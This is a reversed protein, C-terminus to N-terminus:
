GAAPEKPELQMKREEDLKRNRKHITECFSSLKEIDEKVEGPDPRNVDLAKSKSHGTMWVSCKGMAFYVTKNDDDTVEVGSLRKTQVEAGHRMVVKYLLEEEVFTEWAERLKGYVGAAAENYESINKELIEPLKSLRRNLLDLKEKVDLIHWPGRDISQGIWREKTILQATWKSNPIESVHTKLATLFVIDHTFVIVQRVQAEQALRKAIKDRFRHDLSSVPDDFVIPNKTESAEREALFGAIALVRQEGESFIDTLSARKPLAGKTLILKYIVEGGDSTPKIEIPIYSIGLKLMEEKLATQLSPTLAASIIRKGKAAISIINTEAIAAEYGVNKKLANFHKQIEVVHSNLIRRNELKFHKQNMELLQEPTITELPNIEEKIDNLLKSIESDPSQEPPEFADFKKNQCNSIFCQSRLKMKNSYETLATAINPYREKIELMLDSTSTFKTFDLSEIEETFNNLKLLYDEHNKKSTQEMFEHFRHFREATDGLMLQMCLVCRSNEEVVPFPIEPYADKLSYNKAANYLTQWAEGGVGSLPENGVSQNAVVLLAEEAAKLGNLIEKLTDEKEISLATNIISIEDQLETISSTITKLRRIKATRDPSKAENINSELTTLEQVDSLEWHTNKEIIPTPTSATLSNIFNSGESSVPIDKFDLKGIAPKEKTLIERFEKLLSTLQSFVKTGYPLFSVDKEDDVIVAAEKSDFVFINTLIDEKAAGDKWNIEIDEKGAVGIKLIASSPGFPKNSFVNPHIPEISAKASCARKLVRVYGSKGAGNEGYIGTLGEHGFPIFSEDPIANVNKVKDLRKLVIGVKSNPVGSIQGKIVTNPKPCIVNDGLLGHKEKLMNLLDTKDTDTLEELTLMRRVADQQWPQLDKEAWEIVEDIATM